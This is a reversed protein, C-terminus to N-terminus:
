TRVASPTPSPAPSSTPRAMSTSSVSPTASPTSGPSSGGSTSAGSAAVSAPPALPVRVKLVTGKGPPSDLELTGGLSRVRERIGALGNGHEAIGGCGDDRVRLVVGREGDIARGAGKEDLLVEIQAHRAGAHRQINTVAERVIMALTSEVDAPLVAGDSEYTLRVNATELLARASALEGELAAARIGIVATRVQKLAERAINMVDVVERSAAARDRDLLKAALESKIAILSLTHGLLDHLDRSIREREAVRAMRHVEESAARLALNHRRNRLMMYNSLAAAISVITTIGFLLPRFGLLWSELAYICLLLAMAFVLRRFGAITYPMVAVCFILYTNASDNVLALAYGMVAIALVEPLASARPPLNRPDGRRFAGIIRVYLVLFVPITLLTPWLWRWDHGAALLPTFLFGLYILWIYHVWGPMEYLIESEPDRAKTEYSNM